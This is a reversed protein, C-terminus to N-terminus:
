QKVEAGKEEKKLGGKVVVRVEVDGDRGYLVYDGSRLLYRSCYRVFERRSIREMREMREVCKM